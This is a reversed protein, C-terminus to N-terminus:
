FTQDTMTVMMTTPRWLRRKNGLINSASPSSSWYRPNGSWTCTYSPIYVAVASYWNNFGQRQWRQSQELYRVNFGYLDPNHCIVATVPSDYIWGQSYRRHNLSHFSFESYPYSGGFSGNLTCGDLPLFFGADSDQINNSIHRCWWLVDIPIYLLEISTPLSPPPRSILHHISHNKSIARVIITIVVKM